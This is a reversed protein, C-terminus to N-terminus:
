RVPIISQSLSNHIMLSNSKTRKSMLYRDATLNDPPRIRPATDRGDNAVKLVAASFGEIGWGLSGNTEIGLYVFKL